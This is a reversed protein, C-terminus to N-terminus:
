GDTEKTLAPSRERRAIGMNLGLVAYQDSRVFFVRQDAIMVEAEDQPM